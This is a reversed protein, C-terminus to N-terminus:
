APDEKRKPKRTTNLFGTNSNEKTELLLCSNGLTTPKSPPMQGAMLRSFNDKNKDPVNQIWANSSPTIPFARDRSHSNDQSRACWDSRDVYACFAFRHPFSFMQFFVGHPNSMFLQTFCSPQGYNRKTLFGKSILPLRLYLQNSLM